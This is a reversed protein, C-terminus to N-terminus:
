LVNRLKDTVNPLSIKEYTGDNKLWIIKRGLVKLGIDELPIQYCSLQLIYSSLSEDYLEEFPPYFMKGVNRSYEKQLEKNTKYDLIVLGAKDEDGEGDYYYLMDFTGCYQEKPNLEENPNLGSYVKAENLVLHFSSPLDAMFKEIAEEKPHWPALKNTEKHLQPMIEPLVLESHGNLHWGLSEGFAHVQTGLSTAKFSNYHWQKLWYEATEGNKKAYREAQEKEEFPEQFRHTISSVSPVSKGNLFYKHGEEFFTLDKFTELIKHRIDTVISPEGEIKIDYNM